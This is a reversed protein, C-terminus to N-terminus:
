KPVLITRLVVSHADSGWYVSITIKKMGEAPNDVQTFTVRKYSSYNTISNYDETTTTDSTPTGSYGVGIIKEMQDQALTTATTMNKSFKNGKIIGTTLTAMGLLGISFVTIAVLIELLTFGKNNGLRIIKM